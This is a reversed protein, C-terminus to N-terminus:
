SFNQGGIVGYLTDGGDFTMFSYIDIANAAATVTPVIGGPWYVPISATAGENKFDDIDVTRATAGQLVKITFSTANNSSFNFARFELVNETTTITFTQGLSLDVNVIGSSSTLTVPAEHYSKLRADGDVDLLARPADTGVGVSGAAGVRVVESGGTKIILDNTVAGLQVNNTTSNDKFSILSTADTSELLAVANDATKIHVKHTASSVGIGLDNDLNIAGTFEANRLFRSTNRVFLDTKSVGVSGLTLSIDVSPNTTGIGVTPLNGGAQAAPHIAAGGSWLSDVQLNFLGSGDGEVRNAYMIGEVRM